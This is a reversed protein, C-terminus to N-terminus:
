RGAASWCQSSARAPGAASTSCIAGRLGHRELEPLLNGLWLEYDHHATFDDYVPAIAEYALEAWQPRADGATTAEM